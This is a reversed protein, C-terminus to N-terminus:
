QREDLRILWCRQTMCRRTLLGLGISPGVTNCARAQETRIFSSERRNAEAHLRIETKASRQVLREGFELGAVRRVRAHKRQLHAVADDLM